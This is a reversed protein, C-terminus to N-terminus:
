EDLVLAKHVRADNGVVIINKNTLINFLLKVFCM